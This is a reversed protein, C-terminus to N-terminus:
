KIKYGNTTKVRRKVIKRPVSASSLDVSIPSMDQSHMELHCQECLSMLNAVHNKHFTDDIYGKADAQHQEQMHHTEEGLV